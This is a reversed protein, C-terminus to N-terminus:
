VFGNLQKFYIEIDGFLHLASRSPLDEPLDDENVIRKRWLGISEIAETPRRVGLDQWGDADKALSAVIANVARIALRGEVRDREGRIALELERALAGLLMGVSLVETRDM